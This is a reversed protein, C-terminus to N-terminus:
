VSTTRMLGRFAHGKCVGTSTYSNLPIDPSRLYASNVRFKREAGLMEKGGHGKSFCPGKLILFRGRAAKVGQECMYTSQSKANYSASRGQSGRGKRRGSPTVVTVRRSAPTPILVARKVSRRRCELRIAERVDDNLFCYLTAM